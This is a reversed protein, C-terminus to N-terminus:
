STALGFGTKGLIERSSSYGSKYILIRNNDAAKSIEMKEM